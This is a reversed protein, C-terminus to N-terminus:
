LAIRMYICRPRKDEDLSRVSSPCNDSFKEGEGASVVGRAEAWFIWVDVQRGSDISAASFDGSPLISKLTRKFVTVDRQALQTSTCNPYTCLTTPISAPIRNAASGFDDFDATSVYEPSALLMEGRNARVMEAYENALMIALARNGSNTNANVSFTLMSAMATMGFVILLISVLIEILSFGAQNRRANLSIRLHPSKIPKRDLM